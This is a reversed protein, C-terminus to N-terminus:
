GSLAGRRRRRTAPAERAKGIVGRLRHSFSKHCVLTGSPTQAVVCDNLGAVIIPHEADGFVIAGSVEELFVNGRVRNGREDSPIMQEIALWNGVDNWEFAGPVCWVDDAKEMVAYDISIPRLSQFTRLSREAFSPRGMSRVLNDLPRFTQPVHRRAAKLLEAAKWVFIGANWLYRGSALYTAATRADPKEVFRRVRQDHLSRPPKALQLYGFETSACAPVIGIMGLGGQRARAVACAITRRFAEVDGIFHDSPAAVMVSGPWRREVVLAAYVLAAATDRRVPEVLINKRPIEPTQTRVFPVLDKSTSVLIRDLPVLRRARDVAQGYLSQGGFETLFQKPHQSTSLPWFRVGAGGAMLVVVGDRFEEVTQSPLVSASSAASRRGPIKPRKM